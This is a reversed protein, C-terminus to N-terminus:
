DGKVQRRWPPRPEETVAEAEGHGHWWLWAATLANGLLSVAVGIALLEDM